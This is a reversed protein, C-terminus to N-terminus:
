ESIIVYCYVIPRPRLLRQVRDLIVQNSSSCDESRYPATITLVGAVRVEEEVEEVPVRNKRLWSCVAVRKRRTQKADLSCPPTPNLFTWLHEGTEGSADQLLEVEEVAHGMVVCVSSGKTHPRLDKWPDT